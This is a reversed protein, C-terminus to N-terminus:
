TEWKMTTQEQILLRTLNLKTESCNTFFRLDVEIGDVSNTPEVSAFLERHLFPLLFYCVKNSAVTRTETPTTKSPTHTRGMPIIVITSINHDASALEVAPTARFRPNPFSPAVRGLRLHQLYGCSDSAELHEYFQNSM